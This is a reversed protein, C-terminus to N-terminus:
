SAGGACPRPARAPRPEPRPSPPGDASAGAPARAGGGAARRQPPRRPVRARARPHRRPPRRPPLARLIAPAVAGLGREIKLQAAAIRAIREAEIHAATLRAHPMGAAAIRAIRAQTEFMRQHASVKAVAAQMKAIGGIAASLM